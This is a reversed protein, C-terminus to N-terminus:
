EALATEIDLNNTRFDDVHSIVVFKKDNEGIKISFVGNRIRYSEIMECRKLKRIVYGIYHFQKCLSENIYVAQNGYLKTGKLNKSKFLIERAFKRNTFRAIVKNKKGIRHCAEIDMHELSKGHVEVEAEKFINIVHNELEEQEVNAPIGTIEISSRRGYQLYLYHSRELETVRDTIGAINTAHRELIQKEKQLELILEVLQPKKFDNLIKADFLNKIDSMSAAM